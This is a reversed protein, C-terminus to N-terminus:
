DVDTSAPEYLPDTQQLDDMTNLFADNAVPDIREAQALAWVVWEHLKPIGPGNRGAIASQVAAVYERIYNATRLAAASKLLRDIREQELRQFREREAKEAAIKRRRTEEELEAKRTVRWEYHRIADERTGNEARMVLEVYIESLRTEIKEVDDDEWRHHVDASMPSKLICFALKSDKEVPSTFYMGDYRLVRRPEDARVHIYQSYFSFCVSRGQRGSISIKGNFKAVAFSLANLIRLRRREFPNDFIPGDWMSPYSSAQQKERRQEDAKFLREIQSNWSQVTRPVKVEGVTRAVRERVSELSEQFEPKAPLPGLLEAESWQSYGYDNGRAVVVEESMGLPRGPLPAQVTEKGADKRAWYGREPTPIAAHECTKKLAVDSIGFRSALTKMPESWVLDYLEKRSFRKPSTAM